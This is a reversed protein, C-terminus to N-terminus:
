YKEIESKIDEVIELGEIVDEANPDEKLISKLIDELFDLHGEVREKSM